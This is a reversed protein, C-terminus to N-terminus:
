EYSGWGKVSGGYPRITYKTPDPPIQNPCESRAGVLDKKREVLNAELNEVLNEVLNM